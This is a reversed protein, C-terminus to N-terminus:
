VRQGHISLGNSIAKVMTSLSRYRAVTPRIKNRLLPNRTYDSTSGSGPTPVDDTDLATLTALGGCRRGRVLPAYQSM